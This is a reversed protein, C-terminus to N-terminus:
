DMWATTQSLLGLDAWTLCMSFPGLMAGLPMQHLLQELVAAQLAALVGCPGGKEQWLGYRHLSLLKCILLSVLQGQCTALLLYCAAFLLCCLALLLCCVVLLLCCTALRLSCAALIM